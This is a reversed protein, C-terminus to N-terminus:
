KEDSAEVSKFNHGCKNCVHYRIPPHSSYCKNDKSRCKPCRIPIYRVGYDESNNAPRGAQRPPEQWVDNKLWNSKRELWRGM